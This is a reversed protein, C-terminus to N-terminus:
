ICRFGAQWHAFLITKDKMENKLWTFAKRVSTMKFKKKVWKLIRHTLVKFLKHLEGRRFKGYYNIWGRLKPNLELAIQEIDITSIKLVNFSRIDAIIKKRAKRSLGCEFGLFPRGTFKSIKTRPQFSFGLFDFKIENGIEHRRYDKCYVIKTKAESLELKCENLRQKIKFLMFEAEEKTSCHVIMDDAYRVFPCNPYNKTLWKDLSYHLFLNALLPSIVGGQPTGKGQKKIITGDTQEVPANLWRTIYMKVWKEGAHKELAKM